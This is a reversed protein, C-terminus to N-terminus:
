HAASFDNKGNAEERENIVRLMDRFSQVLTLSSSICAAVAAVIDHDKRPDINPNTLAARMFESALSSAAHLETRDMSNVIETWRNEQM